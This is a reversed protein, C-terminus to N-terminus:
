KLIEEYGKEELELALSALGSKIIKGSDVIHVCDPQVLDLLRQYHTILLIANESNKHQNIGSAVAKLADIDLGSDIEDLIALKPKLMRLQLIENKKKEGGSFGSNLPRKILEENMGIDAMIQRIEKLFDSASIEEIGRATRINNVATRLFHMNNLGPIEVPYQFGVFLGAAAREEIELELISQDNLLIDGSTVTIDKHGAIAKSLTSKGSGNLGMIAHVTGAPVDLNLGSIIKNEGISAHLNNIKLM